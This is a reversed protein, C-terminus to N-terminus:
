RGAVEFEPGLESDFTAAAPVSRWEDKTFIGYKTRVQYLGGVYRARPTVIPEDGGAGGSKPPSPVSVDTPQVETESANITEDVRTEKPM